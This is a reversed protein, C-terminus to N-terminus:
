KIKDVDDQDQEENFDYDLHPLIFFFNPLLIRVRLFGGAVLLLLLLLLVRRIRVSVGAIVIVVQVWVWVKM